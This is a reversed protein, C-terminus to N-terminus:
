APLAKVTQNIPINLGDANITGNFNATLNKAKTKILDIITLAVTFGSPTVKIKYNSESNPLIEFKQVQSFGAVIKGNVSIDGAISTVTLSSNTPNVLRFIAIINPVVGSSKEFNLGAFYVKLNKAANGKRMFYYTLAAAALLLPFYKKM